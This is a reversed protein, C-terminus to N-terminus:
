NEIVIKQVIVITEEVIRILYVGTKLDSVSCSKGKLEMSKVTRGTMDTLTLQAHGSETEVFLTKGKVFCFSQSDNNDTNDLNKFVLQFRAEYDHGSSHFTYSPHETLDINDSTLHDILHLYETPSNGSVKLTFDGSQKNRFMLDLTEYESNIHAIAYNTGNDRIYLSFATQAPNDMKELGIGQGFYAFTQDTSGNGFVSIDIRELGNRTRGQEATAPAISKAILVDTDATTQVLLGQGPMIADEFTNVHWAGENTLTYFGSALNPNDIAGGVGKYIVHPFPNGILNFGDLRDPRVTYTIPYTVDAVNLTGVFAPSFTTSNAYLYGRGNEFTTFDVNGDYKYNEWELDDEPAENYRYLDYEPRLFDSGEIPMNNTPSAITYWGDPNDTSYGVINKMMTASVNESANVLQAGDEIVLSSVNNSTLLGNVTLTNGASLTLSKGNNVTLSAVTADNDMVCPAAIVVNDNAQPLANGGWNGAVSWLTNVSGNFVVDNSNSTFPFVFPDRPLGYYGDAVFTYTIDCTVDLESQTTHDWLKLTMVMGNEGNVTLYAFYRDKRPEYECRYSGRCQGDYFAGIELDETRQEVGDISIVSVFTANDPYQYANWTWHEGSAWAQHGVFLSVMLLVIKTKM